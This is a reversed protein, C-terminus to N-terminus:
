YCDHSSPSSVSNESNQGKSPEWAGATLEMGLGVCVGQKFETPWLVFGLCSPPLSVDQPAPVLPSPHPYPVPLLYSQIICM